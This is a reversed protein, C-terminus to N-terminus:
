CYDVSMQPTKRAAQQEKKQGGLESTILNDAKEFLYRRCRSLELFFYIM